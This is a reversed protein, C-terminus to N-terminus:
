HYTCVPVIERVIEVHWAISKPKIIGIVNGLGICVFLCDCARVYISIGYLHFFAKVAPIYGRKWKLKLWQCNESRKHSDFHKSRLNWNLDKWCCESFILIRINSNKETEYSVVNNLTGDDFFFLIFYLGVFIFVFIFFWRRM